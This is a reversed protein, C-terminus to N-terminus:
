SLTWGIHDLVTASSTFCIEGACAYILLNKEGIHNKRGGRFILTQRIWIDPM